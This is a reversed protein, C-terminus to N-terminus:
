VSVAYGGRAVLAFSIWTVIIEKWAGHNTSSFSDIFIGLQVSDITQIGTEPNYTDNNYGVFPIQSGAPIVLPTVNPRVLSNAVSESAPVVARVIFLGNISPQNISTREIPGTGAGARTVTTSIYSGKVASEEINLNGGGTEQGEQVGSPITTRGYATVRFEVFGDDRVQEQPEPFIFLGDIAPAGNDFPMPENVRLINRYRAVDAKRCMFSREVRVLGSPFTQVSRGPLVILDRTGHYTYNSM